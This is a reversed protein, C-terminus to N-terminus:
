CGSGPRGSGHRWARRVSGSHVWPYSPKKWRARISPETSLGGQVVEDAVEVIVAEGGALGLELLPDGGKLQVGWLRADGQFYRVVVAVHAALYRGMGVDDLQGFGGHLGGVHHGLDFGNAAAGVAGPEGEHPQGARVQEGTAVVEVALM